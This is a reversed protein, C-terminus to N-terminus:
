DILIIENGARVAQRPIVYVDQLNEGSIDAEVFAGITLPPSGDSKSAYPDTVQAVAMAQRTQEDLSSEVRVVRGEWSVM